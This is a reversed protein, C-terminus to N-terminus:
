VKKGDEGGKLEKKMMKNPIQFLRELSLNEHTSSVLAREVKLNLM